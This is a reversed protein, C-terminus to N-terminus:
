THIKTLKSSYVWGVGYYDTYVFCIDRNTSKIIKACKYNDPIHLPCLMLLWVTSFTIYQWSPIEQLCLQRKDLHKYKQVFWCSILVSDFHHFSWINWCYNNKYHPKNDSNRYQRQYNSMKYYPGVMTTDACQISIFGNVICLQWLWKNLYLLIFLLSFIWCPNWFKHQGCSNTVYNKRIHRIKIPHWRCTQRDTLTQQTCWYDTILIFGNWSIINM